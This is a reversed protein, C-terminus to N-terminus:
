QEDNMVKHRLLNVIDQNLTEYKSPLSDFPVFVQAGPAIFHPQFNWYDYLVTQVHGDPQIVHAVSPNAEPLKVSGLAKFYDALFWQARHNVEETKKVAGVFQIRSQRAGYRLEYHGQLQPNKQVQSQVVDLDLSTFERYHFSAEELQSVVRYAQLEPAETDLQRLENLVSRKLEDVVSQKDSDFLQAQIPELEFGKERAQQHLDNLVRELRVPESYDLRLQQHPLLVSLQTAAFSSFASVPLLLLALTKFGKLM